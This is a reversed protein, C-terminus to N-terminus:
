STCPKDLNIYFLVKEGRGGLPVTDGGAILLCSNSFAAIILCNVRRWVSNRQIFPPQNLPSSHFM